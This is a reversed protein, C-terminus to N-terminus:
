LANYKQAELVIHVGDFVPDKSPRGTSDSGQSFSFECYLVTFEKDEVYLKIIGNM